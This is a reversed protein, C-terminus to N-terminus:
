PPGLSGHQPLSDFGFFIADGDPDSCIPIELELSGNRNIHFTGTKLSCSPAAPGPPGGPNPYPYPYPYPYQQAVAATSWLLVMSTAVAAVRAVRRTAVRDRM